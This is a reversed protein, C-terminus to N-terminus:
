DQTVTISFEIQSSRAGIRWAGNLPTRRVEGLDAFGAFENRSLKFSGIRPFHEMKRARLLTGDLKFQGFRTYAGLRWSGDLARRAPRLKRVSDLQLRGFPRAIAEGDITATIRQDATIGPQGIKLRGIKRAEHQSGLRIGGDLRWGRGLQWRRGIRAAGPYNIEIQERFTTTDIAAGLPLAESDLSANMAYSEAILRGGISWAGGLKLGKMGLRNARAALASDSIIIGASYEALVGPRALRFSGDLKQGGWAEKLQYQGGLGLGQGLKMAAGLKRPATPYDLRIQEGHEITAGAKIAPLDSRKSMGAESAAHLARAGLAWSGDLRRLRESLKPLRYVSGEGPIGLVVGGDVRCGKLKWASKAGVRQGLKFSGMPLPLCVLEGDKGLSWAADDSTTIVRGCWPYRLRSEKFMSLLMDSRVQIALVFRLWFRFVPVFRAPIVARIVELLGSTASRGASDLRNEGAALSELGLLIEIRSTLFLNEEDPAYVPPESQDLVLPRGVKWGSGLKLGPEGLFHYWYPDRVENSIFASGYPHRKDHWLQRVSAEGPFLMQLYTRVFHLGRKQVDGSRWARYLYRTAAEERSGQLLVLGDHNMMRRVLEFSGLHPAGLVMADFTDPAVQEFLQGFLEKLEAEVQTTAHSHRLPEARPLQALPFDFQSM